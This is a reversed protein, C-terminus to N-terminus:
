RAVRMAKMQEPDGFFKSGRYHRSRHCDRCLLELDEPYEFGWRAYTKHHMEMGSARLGCENCVSGDDRYVDARTGPSISPRWELKQWLSFKKRDLRDIEILNYNVLCTIDMVKCVYEGRVRNLIVGPEGCGIHHFPTGAPIIGLRRDSGFWEGRRIDSTKVTMPVVTKGDDVFVWRKGSTAKDGAVGYRV